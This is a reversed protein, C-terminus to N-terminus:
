YNLPFFILSFLRILVIMIIIIMIISKNYPQALYILFSLSYLSWWQHGLLLNQAVLSSFTSVILFVVWSAICVTNALSINGSCISLSVLMVLLTNSGSICCSSNSRNLALSICSGVCHYLSHAKHSGFLNLFYSFCLHFIVFVSFFFVFTSIPKIKITAPM